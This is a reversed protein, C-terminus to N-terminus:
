YIFRFSEWDRIYVSFGYRMCNLDLSNLKSYYNVENTCGENLLETVVKEVADVEDAEPPDNPENLTIYVDFKNDFVNIYTGVGVTTEVITDM